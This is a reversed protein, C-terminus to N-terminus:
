NAGTPTRSVLSRQEEPTLQLMYRVLLDAHDGTYNQFSAPVPGSFMWRDTDRRFLGSPMATGPAIQQPNTIWREMWPARLREKAFLFNPASANADHQPDGTAHCKLCPAATSTFLQRAMTTEAPTLAEIKQPIFQQPQHSIAEFFAILSRIEDDSFSFTPMRVQLYSRIGNRNAGEGSLSPDALFRRLWEPNVRAGESTLPPPLKDKNEGQSM